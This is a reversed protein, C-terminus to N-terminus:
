MCCLMLLLLPRTEVPQDLDDNIDCWCSSSSSNRVYYVRVPVTFPLCGMDVWHGLVASSSLKVSAWQM